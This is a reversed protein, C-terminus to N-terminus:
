HDNLEIVVVFAHRDGTTTCTMAMRTTPTPQSTYRRASVGM